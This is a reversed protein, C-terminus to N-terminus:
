HRDDPKKGYTMFTWRWGLSGIMARGMPLFCCQGFSGFSSVLGFV